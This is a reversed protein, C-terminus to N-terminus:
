QMGSQFFFIEVDSVHRYGPMRPSDLKEHFCNKSHRMNYERQQHQTVSMRGQRLYSCYEPVIIIPM